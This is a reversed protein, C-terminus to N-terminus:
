RSPTIGVKLLFALGPWVMASRSEQDSRPCNLREPLPAAGVAPVDSEAASPAIPRPGILPLHSLHDVVQRWMRFGRPSETRPEVGTEQGLALLASLQAM